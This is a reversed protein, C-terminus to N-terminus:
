TREPGAAATAGEDTPPVAHLGARHRPDSPFASEDFPEGDFHRSLARVM